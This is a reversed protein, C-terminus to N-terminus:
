KSGYSEHQKETKTKLYNQIDDIHILYTSYRQGRIKIVNEFVPKRYRVRPANKRWRGKILYHINQVTCGIMKSAETVTFFEDTM